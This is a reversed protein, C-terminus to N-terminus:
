KSYSFMGYLKRSFFDLVDLHGCHPQECKWAKEILFISHSTNYGNVVNACVILPEEYCSVLYTNVWLLEEM